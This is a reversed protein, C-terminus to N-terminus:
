NKANNPLVFTQGPYILHPNRIQDHNASYIVTYRMGEGYIRQSIRWLSEGRVVLATRVEPVVVVASKEDSPKEESAKESSPKAAAEKLGRTAEGDSSRVRDVSAAAGVGSPAAAVQRVPLNFPVEARSKVAGSVPDVHDLRVRYDGPVVGSAISFSLKGDKGASGSALYSDNLYLRVTAGPAARGGVFLKGGESGEATEIAVASSLSRTNDGAKESLRGSPSESKEPSSLVVTPRDPASLAVIVPEKRKQALSVAVAEKSLKREGDPGTFRLTLQHDGEPLKEPTMAFLGAADAVTRGHVVGNRLLEVTAGPAARGAVVSEGDPEVRVVDFAPFERGEDDRASKRAQREGERPAAQESPKAATNATDRREDAAVRGGPQGAGRGFDFIGAQRLPGFALVALGFIALVAVVLASRLNFM